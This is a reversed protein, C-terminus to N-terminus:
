YIRVSMVNGKRVPTLFGRIFTIALTVAGKRASGSVNLVSKSVNFFLLYAHVVSVHADRGIDKFWRREAHWLVRASHQHTHQSATHLDQDCWDILVHRWYFRPRQMSCRVVAGKRGWTTECWRATPLVLPSNWHRRLTVVWRMVWM